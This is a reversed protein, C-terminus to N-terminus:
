TVNSTPLRILGKREFREFDVLPISRVLAADLLCEVGEGELPLAIKKRNRAEVVLKRSFYRGRIRDIESWALFRHHGFWGRHRLGEAEIWVRWTLWNWLAWIAPVILFVAFFIPVSGTADHRLVELYVGYGVHWLGVVLVFIASGFSFRSRRVEGGRAPWIRWVFNLAFGTCLLVALLGGLAPWDQGSSL